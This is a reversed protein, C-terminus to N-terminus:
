NRALNLPIPPHGDTGRPAQHLEIGGRAPDEVELEATGTGATVSTTM